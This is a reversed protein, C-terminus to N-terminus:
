LAAVARSEILEELSKVPAIDLCGSKSRAVHAPIAIGGAKDIDSVIQHMPALIVRDQGDEKFELRGFWKKFGKLDSPDFYALLHGEATSLEVGAIVTVGQKAGEAIASEVADIANHDTVALMDIGREIAKAVIAAPVMSSDKVDKSVGFSHIHLDVRRFTAGKAAADFDAFPPTSSIPNDPM